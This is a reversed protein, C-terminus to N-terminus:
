KHWSSNGTESESEDRSEKCRDGDDAQGQPDDPPHLRCLRESNQHRTSLPSPQGNCAKNEGNGRQGQRCQEHDHRYWARNLM